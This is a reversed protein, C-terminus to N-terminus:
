NIRIFWNFRNNRPEGGPTGQQTISFNVTAAGAVTGPQDLAADVVATPNFTGVRDFSNPFGTTPNVLTHPHNHSGIEGAQVTGLATDGDPNVGSAHSKMRLYRGRLDPANTAGTIAALASGVISRGDALIFGAGNFSQYQAESLFSGDVSGVALGQANDILWNISGGVKQFLSESGPNLDTTEEVQIKKQVSPVNAM